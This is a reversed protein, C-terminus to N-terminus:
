FLFKQLTGYTRDWSLETHKFFYEQVTDPVNLNAQNQAFYIWSLNDGIKISGATSQLENIILKVLTSKGTGNPGKLWVKQSGYVELNIDDLITKSKDYSFGVNKIDLIRKRDHVGGKLELGHIELKKYKDIENALIERNLRS